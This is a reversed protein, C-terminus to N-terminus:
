DSFIPSNPRQQDKLTHLALQMAAKKGAGSDEWHRSTMFQYLTVVLMFQETEKATANAQMLADEAMAIASKLIALDVGEPPQRPQDDGTALWDLSVDNIKAILCARSLSPESGKLYKRILSESLGVKRAFASVTSGAILRRLRETFDSEETLPAM